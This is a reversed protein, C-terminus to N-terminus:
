IIHDLIEDVVGNELMGDSDLYLEVRYNKDYEKPTFKTHKCVFDKVRKEYKKQFEISDFVQTMSGRAGTCGSHLLYTSSKYCFRKHGGILLLGGSSYNNGEGITWVPTKSMDMLDVVAMTPPLDGGYSNIYIKIPVREEYPINNKDDQYNYQKIWYGVYDLLNDSIDENVFLRRDSLDRWGNVSDISPLQKGVLEQTDEPLLVDIFLDNKTIQKM